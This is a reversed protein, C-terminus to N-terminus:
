PQESDVIDSASLFRMKLKSLSHEDDDKYQELKRELKLGKIYLPKAKYVASAMYRTYDRIDTKDESARLKESWQFYWDRQKELKEVIVQYEAFEPELNPTAKEKKEAQLVNVTFNEVNLEAKHNVMYEVLSDSVLQTFSKHTLDAFNTSSEKLINPLYITTRTKDQSLSLNNNKPPYTIDTIDTIDLEKKEKIEEPSPSSANPITKPETM